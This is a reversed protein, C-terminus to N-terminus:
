IILHSLWHKWLQDLPTWIGFAHELVDDWGILLFVAALLTRKPFQRWFPRALAGTAVCLGALTLIAGTVPYFQWTLAFGIGSVSIGAAVLYPDAKQDDWVTAAVLAAGILGFYLHHPAFVHGDPIADYPFNM